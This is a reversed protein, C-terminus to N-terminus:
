SIKLKKRFSEIDVPDLNSDTYALGQNIQEVIKLIFLIANKDCDCAFSKYERIIINLTNELVNKNFYKSIIEPENMYSTYFKYLYIGYDILKRSLLLYTTHNNMREASKMSNIIYIPIKFYEQMDKNFDSIQDFALTFNPKLSIGNKFRRLVIENYSSAVSNNFDDITSFKSHPNKLDGYYYYISSFIDELGMDLIDDEKIKSFGILNKKTAGITGLSYQNVLTGSIYSGRVIDSDWTRPDQKFRETMPNSNYFRIQHIIMSYDQDTIDIIGPKSKIFLNSAINQKCMERYKSEIQDLFIKDDHTSKLNIIRNLEETTLFKNTKNKELYIKIRKNLENSSIGFISQNKEETEKNKYYTERINLFNILDEPTLIGYKDRNVDKIFEPLIKAEIIKEDKFLHKYKEFVNFLENPQILINFNSEILAKIFTTGEISTFIDKNELIHEIHLENTHTMVYRIKFLNDNLLVLFEKM